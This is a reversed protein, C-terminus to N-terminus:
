SVVPFYLRDFLLACFQHYCHWFLIQGLLSIMAISLCIHHFYFLKQIICLKIWWSKLFAGALQSYVSNNKLFFFSCLPYNIVSHFNKNVGWHWNFLIFWAQFTSIIRQAKQKPSLLNCVMCFCLFWILLFSVGTSCRLIYILAIKQM